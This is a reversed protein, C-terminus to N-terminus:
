KLYGAQKMIRTVQQQSLKLASDVLTPEVVVVDDEPHRAHRAIEEVLAGGRVPESALVM